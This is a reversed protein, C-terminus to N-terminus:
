FRQCCLKRGHSSLSMTLWTM